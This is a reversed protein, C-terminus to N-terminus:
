RSLVLRAFIGYHDSIPEKYDFVVSGECQNLNLNANHIFIYDFRQHTKSVNYWQEAYHNGPVAYTISRHDFTSLVDQFGAKLFAGYEPSFKGTTETPFPDCPSSNLDGAIIVPNSGRYQEIHELLRNIQLLRVETDQTSRGAYLHVNAVVVQGVPTEIKSIIYGKHGYREDLKMGPFVKHEFFAYDIFPFKSVIVLGGSKDLRIFPFLWWRDGLGGLSHYQSGLAEILCKRNAVKFSEQFCIINPSLALLEDPMRKLRKSRNLGPLWIPMDWINLTVLSLVVNM